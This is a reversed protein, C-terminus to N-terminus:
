LYKSEMSCSLFAPSVRAATFALNRESWQTATSSTESLVTVMASGTQPFVRRECSWNLFIQRNEPITRFRSEDSFIQREAPVEKLFREFSDIRDAEQLSADGPFEAV